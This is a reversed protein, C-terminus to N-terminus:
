LMMQNAMINHKVEDILPKNITEGPRLRSSGGFFKKLTDMAMTMNEIAMQFMMATQM